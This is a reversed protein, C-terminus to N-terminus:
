FRLGIVLVDDTQKEVGKWEDFALALMKYQEDISYNGITELLSIFKNHMFKRNEDGGFQDQFGDSFLYVTAPSNLTIKHETFDKDPKMAFTGGISFIDGAHVELKENQVIAISHNAAAFELEHVSRDYSCITIDMGDDHSTENQDHQHLSDLIKQNLQGLIGAPSIEKNEQVISNLITFGIMSMFAGAVGHGTCDALALFVKNGRPYLWYFDGSVIDKPKFFIFSQAFHKKFLEQRPLITEQITSAYVISDTIQQNKKALENNVFALQELNTSIEEKQQEIESNRERLLKNSKQKIRNSYFFLFAVLTILVFGGLLFNKVLVAQQEKQKLIELEKEKNRLDYRIQMRMKRENAELNFLTDNVEVYRALYYYAENYFQLNENTQALSLYCDRREKKYELSDAIDLAKLYYNRAKVYEKQDRMLDGLHSYCLSRYSLINLDDAINLAKNYIMYAQYYDNRKSSISGIGLLSLFMGEKNKTEEEILLSRKYYKYAEQYRKLSEYIRGLKYLNSLIQTSVKSDEAFKLSQNYYYIAQEIQNQSFYVNGIYNFCVATRANDKILESKELAIMHNALATEYEGLDNKITGMLNYADIIGPFYNSKDSLRLAKAALDYSVKPSNGKIKFGDNIYYIALASDSYNDSDVIVTDKAKDGYSSYFLFLFFVFLFLRFNILVM